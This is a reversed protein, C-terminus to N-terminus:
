YRMQQETLEQIQLALEVAKNRLDANEAELQVLLEPSKNRSHNVRSLSLRFPFVPNYRAPEVAAQMAPTDFLRSVQKQM